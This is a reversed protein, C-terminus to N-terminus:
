LNILSLTVILLKGNNQNDSWYELSLSHLKKPLIDSFLMFEESVLILEPYQKHTRVDKRQFKTKMRSKIWNKNIDPNRKKFWNESARKCCFHTIRLPVCVRHGLTQAVSCFNLVYQHNSTQLSFPKGFNFFDNLWMLSNIWTLTM